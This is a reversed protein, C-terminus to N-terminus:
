SSKKLFYPDESYYANTPNLVAEVFPFSNFTFGSFSFYSSFANLKSSFGSGSDVLKVPPKVVADPFFLSLTFSLFSL